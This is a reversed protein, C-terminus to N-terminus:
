STQVISSVPPRAMSVTIEAIPISRDRAPSRSPSLLTNLVFVTDYSKGAETLPTTFNPENISNPFYQTELCFADRDKCVAGGQVKQGQIFNATYLQMGICDTIVDMKIGSKTSYATAIKELGAREKDLVFNHDYGHGYSLQDNAQEIDRGMPKAERFDFPTGDVSAIEGTPISKADIVPTYHSARIQLIQEMASGSGAGNLNFYAHNTMNFITTKDATAHYTISLENAETVEYTVKMVANGPYGQQGEADKIVFTIKDATQEEADWLRRSTAQSGSHLNNENDNKELQYTVGDIVIEANAIRNCNRGVVAGFSAMQQQYTEANEYGLVVDTNKGDKDKVVLSVISAGFDTIQAYMGKTNSITYLTAEEGDALKGFAKREM